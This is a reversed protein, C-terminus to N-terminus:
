ARVELAVRLDNEVQWKVTLAHKDGALEDGLARLALKEQITSALQVLVIANCIAHSLPM